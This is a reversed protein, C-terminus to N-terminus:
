PDSPKRCVIFVADNVNGVAAIRRFLMELAVGEASLTGKVECLLRDEHVSLQLVGKVKRGLPSPLRFLSCDM